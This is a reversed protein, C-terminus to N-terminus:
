SEYLTCLSQCCLVTLSSIIYPNVFYKSFLLIYSLYKAYFNVLVSQKKYYNSPFRTFFLPLIDIKRITVMSKDTKVQVAYASEFSCAISAEAFYSTAVISLSTLLVFTISKFAFDATNISAAEPLISKSFFLWSFSAIALTVLIIDINNIMSAISEPLSDKSSLTETESYAAPIPPECAYKFGPSSNETVSISLANAM